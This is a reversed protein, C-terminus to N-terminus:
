LTIYICPHDSRFGYGLGMTSIGAVVYSVLATRFLFDACCYYEYERALSSVGLLTLSAGITMLTVNISNDLM